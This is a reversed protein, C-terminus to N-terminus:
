KHKKQDNSCRPDPIPPDARGSDNRFFTVAMKLFFITKKTLSEFVHKRLEYRLLVIYVRLFHMFVLILLEALLVSDVFARIFSAYIKKNKISKEHVNWSKKVVKELRVDKLASYKKNTNKRTMQVDLTLFRRTQEEPIM